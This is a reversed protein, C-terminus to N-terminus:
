ESLALDEARNRGLQVPRRSTPAVQNPSGTYCLSPAADQDGAGTKMRVGAAAAESKAATALQWDGSKWSHRAGAALDKVNAPDIWAAEV